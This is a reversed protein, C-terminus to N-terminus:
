CAEVFLLISTSVVSSLVALAGFVGPHVGKWAYYVYKARENSRTKNPREVAECFVTADILPTLTVPTLSVRPSVYGLPLLNAVLCSARHIRTPPTRIYM